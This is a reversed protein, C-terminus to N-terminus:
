DSNQAQEKKMKGIIDGLMPWFFIDGPYGIIRGVEKGEEMVVFTPTYIIGGLHELDGPRDQDVDVRRLPLIRGESTKDYVGGIERNWAECWVCGESEFMVLQGASVPAVSLVWLVSALGIAALRNVM